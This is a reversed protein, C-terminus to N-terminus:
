YEDILVEDTNERTTQKSTMDTATASETSILSTSPLSKKNVLDDMLDKNAPRRELRLHLAAPPFHNRAPGGDINLVERDGIM